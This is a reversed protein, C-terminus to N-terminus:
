SILTLICHKVQAELLTLCATREGVPTMEIRLGFLIQNSVVILVRHELMVM